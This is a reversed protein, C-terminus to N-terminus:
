FRAEMNTIPEWAAHIAVGRGQTNVNVNVDSIYPRFRGPYKNWHSIGALYETLKGGINKAVTMSLKSQRIIPGSDVSVGKITKFNLLVVNDTSEFVIKYPPVTPRYTV